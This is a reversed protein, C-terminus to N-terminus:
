YQSIRNVNRVKKFAMMLLIPVDAEVAILHTDVQEISLRTIVIFDSTSVKAVINRSVVESINRKTTEIGADLTKIEIINQVVFAEGIRCREILAGALFDTASRREYADSVGFM